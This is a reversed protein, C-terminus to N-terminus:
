PRVVPPKLHRPSVQNRLCVEHFAEALVTADLSSLGMPSKRARSVVKSIRDVCDKEGRSWFLMPNPVSLARVFDEVLETLVDPGFSTFDVLDGM